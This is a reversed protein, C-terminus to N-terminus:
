EGGEEEKEGRSFHSFHSRVEPPPFFSSSFLYFFFAMWERDTKRGEREQDTSRRHSLEARQLREEEEGEGM